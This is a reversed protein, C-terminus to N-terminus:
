FRATVVFHLLMNFSSEFSLFFCFLSNVKDIDPIQIREESFYTNLNLSTNEDPQRRQNSKPATTEDRQNTNGNHSNSDPDRIIIEDDAQFSNNASM